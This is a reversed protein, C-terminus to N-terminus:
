LVSTDFGLLELQEKSLGAEYLSRIDDPRAKYQEDSETDYWKSNNMKTELEELLEGQPIQAPDVQLDHLLANRRRNADTFTHEKEIRELQEIIKQQQEETPIYPNRDVDAM